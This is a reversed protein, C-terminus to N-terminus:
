ELLDKKLEGWIVLAKKAAWTAAKSSITAGTVADIDKKLRLPDNLSKGIFQRLFRKKGIKAGKVEMSKIVALDRIEGSPTIVISFSIPGHKGQESVVFCYADINGKSKGIYFTYRFERVRRGFREEIAQRKDETLKIERTTIKESGALFRKLLDGEILDSQAHSLLSCAISFFIILLFILKKM